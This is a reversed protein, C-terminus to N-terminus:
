VYSLSPLYFFFFTEHLYIYRFKRTALTTGTERVMHETPGETLGTKRARLLGSQMRVSGCIWWHRGLMPREM